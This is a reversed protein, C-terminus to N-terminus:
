VGEQIPRAAARKTREAEHWEDFRRGAELLDNVPEELGAKRMFKDLAEMVRFEALLEVSCFFSSYV